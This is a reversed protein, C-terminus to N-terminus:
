QATAEEIATEPAPESKTPTETEEIAVAPEKETAIVNEETAEVAAADKSDSSIDEVVPTPLEFEEILYVRNANLNITGTGLLKAKKEYKKSDSFMKKIDSFSVRKLYKIDGEIKAFGNEITVSDATYLSYKANPELYNSNEIFWIAWRTEAFAMSAVLLGLCVIFNKKM